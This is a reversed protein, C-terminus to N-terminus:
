NNFRQLFLLLYYYFSAITELKHKTDKDDSRDSELSM